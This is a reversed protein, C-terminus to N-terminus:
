LFRYEYHWDIRDLGRGVDVNAATRVIITRQFKIADIVRARNGLGKTRFVIVSM